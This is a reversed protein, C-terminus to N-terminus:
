TFQKEKWEIYARKNEYAIKNADVEWPLAKYDSSDKVSTFYDSIFNDLNDKGSKKFLSLMEKKYKKIHDDFMRTRYQYVHRLEHFLTKVTMPLFDYNNAEAHKRTSYTNIRIVYKKLSRKDCDGASIIKEDPKIYIVCDDVGLRDTDVLWKCVEEIHGNYCKPFDKILVIGKKLEITFGGDIKIMNGKINKKKM